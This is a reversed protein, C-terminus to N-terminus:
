DNKTISEIYKNSNTKSNNSNNLYQNDVFLVFKISLYGGNSVTKM